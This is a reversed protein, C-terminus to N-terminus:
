YIFSGDFREAVVSKPVALTKPVVVSLAVIRTEVMPRMHMGIVEFGLMSWGCTRKNSVPTFRPHWFVCVARYRDQYRCVVSFVKQLPKRPRCAVHHLFCFVFFFYLSRGVKRHFRNPLKKNRLHPSIYLPVHMLKVELDTM